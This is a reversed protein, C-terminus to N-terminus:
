AFADGLRRAHWRVVRLTVLSGLSTKDQRTLVKRESIAGQIDRQLGILEAEFRWLDGIDKFEVKLLKRALREIRRLFPRAVLMPSTPSDNNIM